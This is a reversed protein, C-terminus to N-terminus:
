AAAWDVVHSRHARGGHKAGGGVHSRSCLAELVKQHLGEAESALRHTDGRGSVLRAFCSLLREFTHFLSGELTLTDLTAALYRSFAPDTVRGHAGTIRFWRDLIEASTPRATAFPGAVLLARLSGDVVVPVFLDHFGGHEGRVVRKTAQAKALCRLNYRFRLPNVGQEVEITTVSTSLYLARWTGDFYASVGIDLEQFVSTLIAPVLMPLAPYDPLQAIKAAKPM